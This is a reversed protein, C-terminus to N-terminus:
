SSDLPMAQAIQAIFSKGKQAATAALSALIGFTRAGARTKNGCSLKRAIVAPRLQREALNNTADVGDHRLFSFLHDKQKCLRQRVSEEHAKERATSLLAESDRELQAIEQQYQPAPLEARKEGLALASKLLDGLESLFGAGQAADVAKAAKIAKFHHAYCKQQVGTEIDYVSLCDSVLVGAFSPGLVADLVERGRSKLVLYLTGRACAFVWLWYPQGGVWWSTEDVHLVPAAVLEAHLQEYQPELHAAVRDLAQSLGGATLKLGFHDALVACTKRMSLGKAKNLDAAVALARPGLMVAAAGTADSTQLPHRSRTEAGCCACIAEYTRLRTVRPRPEPIEEIFQEFERPERWQSGGCAGCRELAVAIEEDIREPRPRCAGPHGAKRGPPKPAQARKQEPVRFPAAQRLAAKQAELLQAELQAIRAEKAKLGARAEKLQASRQQLQAIQMLAVDVLLLPEEGAMQAIDAPTFFRRGESM